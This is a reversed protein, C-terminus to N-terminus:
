GLRPGTMAKAVESEWARVAKGQSEWRVQKHPKIGGTALILEAEGGDTNYSNRRPQIYM